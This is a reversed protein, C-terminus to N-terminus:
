CRRYDNVVMWQWLGCLKDAQSPLRKVAGNRAFIQLPRRVLSRARTRDDQSTMPLKFETALFVVLTDTYVPGDAEKLLRILEKRFEGHAGTM